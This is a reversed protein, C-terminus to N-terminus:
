RTRMADTMILSDGPPAETQLLYQILMVFQLLDHQRVTALLGCLVKSTKALLESEAVDTAKALHKELKPLFNSFLFKVLNESDPVTLSSLSELYELVESIVAMNNIRNRV